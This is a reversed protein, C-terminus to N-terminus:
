FAGAGGAQGGTKIISVIYIVVVLALIILMVALNKGGQRRAIEPDVAQPAPTNSPSERSTM